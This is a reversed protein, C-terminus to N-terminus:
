DEDVESEEDGFFSSVDTEISSIVIDENDLVEFEIKAPFADSFDVQDKTGPEYVLHLYVTAPAVWRGDEIVASQGHAVINQLETGESLESLESWQPTSTYDYLGVAEQLREPLADFWRKDTRAITPVTMAM